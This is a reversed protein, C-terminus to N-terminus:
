MCEKCKLCKGPKDAHEHDLGSHKCRCTLM